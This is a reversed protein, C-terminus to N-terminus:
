DVDRALLIAQRVEGRPPSRSKPCDIEGSAPFAAPAVLADASALFALAAAFLVFFSATTLPLDLTTHLPSIDLVPRPSPAGVAKYLM